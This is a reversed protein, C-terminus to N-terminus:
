RYLYIDWYLLSVGAIAQINPTQQKYTLPMTVKGISIYILISFPFTKDNKRQKLIITVYIVVYRRNSIQSFFLISYVYLDFICNDDYKFICNFFIWRENNLKVIFTLFNINIVWGWLISHPIVLLGGHTILLM